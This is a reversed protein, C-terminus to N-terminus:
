FYIILVIKRAIIILYICQKVAILATIVEDLKTRMDSDDDSYYGGYTYLVSYRWLDAKAFFLEPHIMQYAWHVSTGGFVTAMFDDKCDNGCVTPRWDANRSFLESLHPPLPDSSNKCAVWINRPILKDNYGKLGPDKEATLKIDDYKLDTIKGLFTPNLLPLNFGTEIFSTDPLSSATLGLLFTLTTFFLLLDLIIM